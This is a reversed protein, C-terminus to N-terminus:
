SFEVLDIYKIELNVKLAYSAEKLAKILSM